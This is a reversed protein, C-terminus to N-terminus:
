LTPHFTNFVVFFPHVPLLNSVVSSDCFNTEDGIPCTASGSASSSTSGTSPDTNCQVCDPYVHPLSLDTRKGAASWVNSAYIPCLMRSASGAATLLGM